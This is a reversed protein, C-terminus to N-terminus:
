SLTASQDIETGQHNEQIKAWLEHALECVGTSNKEDTTMGSYMIAKAEEHKLKEAKLVDKEDAPDAGEEVLCYKYLGKSKLISTM